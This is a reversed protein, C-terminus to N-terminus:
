IMRRMTWQRTIVKNTKNGRKKHLEEMNCVVYQRQLEVVVVIDKEEELLARLRSFGCDTFEILIALVIQRLFFLSNRTTIIHLVHKKYKTIASRRRRKGVSMNCASRIRM